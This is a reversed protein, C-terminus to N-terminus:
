PLTLMEYNVGEAEDRVLVTHEFQASLGKDVTHYYKVSSGPISFERIGESLENVM